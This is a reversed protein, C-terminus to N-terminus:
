SFDNKRSNETQVSLLDFHVQRQRVIKGEDEKM